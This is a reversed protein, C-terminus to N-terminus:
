EIREGCGEGATSSCQPLVWDVVIVVLRALSESGINGGVVGLISELRIMGKM